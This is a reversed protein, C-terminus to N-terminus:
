RRRLAETPELRAARWAPICGGLLGLLLSFVVATALVPPTLRFAFAVETFTNFNTTGTEIGNLPLALLCGAAGGIVGLIVSEFLFSLFIPFPRFGLALLIGVEHTRAAVASLMTNTATFVAAIGMVVGLIGGVVALMGGLMATMSLLYERETMVKAPVEKDQDLRKRFAELTAGAVDPRLRATVASAWPMALAVSMREFDGWIESEFAGPCEFIGVVRFPTLNLQVVDGVRCQDIRDAIKRGVIVEDGGFKLMTGEVIKLQDRLKFSAPQVGRIPVNTEGSGGAKQRRVALYTEMAALPQGAEDAAIEPLTKILRDARERPFSSEGESTAGPRLFVAVDDRGGATYFTEFGARLALFGALVAVTAGIGLITLLTASKRVLLSRLNYSAPVLM